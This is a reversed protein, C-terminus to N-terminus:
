DLLPMWITGNMLPSAGLYYEESPSPPLKPWDVLTKQIAGSPVYINTLTVLYVCLGNCAHLLFVGDQQFSSM